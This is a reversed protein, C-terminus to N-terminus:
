VILFLCTRHLKKEFPDVIIQAIFGPMRIYNIVYLCLKLYGASRPFPVALPMVM